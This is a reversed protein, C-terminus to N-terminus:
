APRSSAPNARPRVIRFGISPPTPETVRSGQERGWQVYGLSRLRKIVAPDLDEISVLVAADSWPTFALKTDGRILCRAKLWNPWAQDREVVIPRTAESFVDRVMVGLSIM